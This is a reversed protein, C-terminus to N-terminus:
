VIKKKGIREWDLFGDMIIAKEQRDLVILSGGVLLRPRM